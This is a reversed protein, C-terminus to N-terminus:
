DCLLPVCIPYLVIAVWALSEVQDYEPSSCDLSYDARLFSSEGKGFSECDLAQFAQSFVVPFAYFLLCMLSPLGRILGAKLSAAKRKTLVEAAMSCALILLGLVWPALVLILLQDFFLGLQMCSWPMGLGEINLTLVDFVKLLSRVSAPM